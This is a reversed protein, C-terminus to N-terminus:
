NDDDDDIGKIAVTLLITSTDFADDDDFIL